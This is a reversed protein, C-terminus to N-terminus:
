HVFGDIALAVANATIAPIKSNAFIVVDLCVLYPLM